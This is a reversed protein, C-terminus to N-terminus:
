TSSRPLTARSCMATATGSMAKIKGRFQKDPIADLQLLADQGERLNARDLEGVKTWVELESLDLVDAVPMGPQLRTAKASTPCRSASISIARRPEAQHAVLGTIQALARTQAIRQMERQVDILSRNRQEQLVALQSDAQEQRAEIDAEFQQM